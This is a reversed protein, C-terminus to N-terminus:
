PGVVLALRARSARIMASEFALNVSRRADTVEGNLAIAEAPVGVFGFRPGYARLITRQASLLRADLESLEATTLDNLM